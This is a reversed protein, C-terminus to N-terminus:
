LYKGFCKVSFFMFLEFLGNKRGEKGKVENVNKVM